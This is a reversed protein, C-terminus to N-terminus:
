SHLLVKNTKNCSLKADHESINTEEGEVEHFLQKKM